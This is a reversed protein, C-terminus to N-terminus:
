GIEQFKQEKAHQQGSKQETDVVSILTTMGLNKFANLRPNVAKLVPPKGPYRPLM